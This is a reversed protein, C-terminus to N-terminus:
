CERSATSSAAIKQLRTHQASGAAMEAGVNAGEPRVIPFTIAPRVWPESPNPRAKPM